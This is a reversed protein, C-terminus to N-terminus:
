TVHINMVIKVFTSWKTQMSPWDFWNVAKFGIKGIHIQINDEWRSRPEGLCDRVTCNKLDSLVHVNLDDM